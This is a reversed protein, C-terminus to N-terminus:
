HTGRGQQRKADGHHKRQKHQHRSLDGLGSIRDSNETGGIADSAETGIILNISDNEQPTALSNESEDEDDSGIDVYAVASVAMLGMLGALWLM